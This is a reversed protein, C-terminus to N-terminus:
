LEVGKAFAEKWTSVFEMEMENLVYIKGDENISIIFAIEGTELSKIAYEPYEDRNGSVWERRFGKACRQGARFEKLKTINESTITM